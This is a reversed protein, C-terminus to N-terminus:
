TGPFPYYYCSNHIRKYLTVEQLKEASHLWGYKIATGPNRFPVILKRMDTRRDTGVYKRM